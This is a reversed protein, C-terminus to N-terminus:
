CVTSQTNLVAPALWRLSPSSRRPSCGRCRCRLDSSAPVGSSWRWRRVRRAEWPQRAPPGTRVSSAAPMAILAPVYIKREAILKMPKQVFEIASSKVQIPELIPKSVFGHVACAHPSTPCFLILGKLIYALVTAVDYTLARNKSQSWVSWSIGNPIAPVFFSPRGNRSGTM